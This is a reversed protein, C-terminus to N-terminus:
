KNRVATKFFESEADTTFKYILSVFPSISLLEEQFRYYPLLTERYRCVLRVDNPP